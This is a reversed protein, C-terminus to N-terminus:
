LDTQRYVRNFNCVSTIVTVFIIGATLAVTLSFIALFYRINKYHSSIVYLVPTMFRRVAKAFHTFHAVIIANKM